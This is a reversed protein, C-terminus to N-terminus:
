RIRESGPNSVDLNRLWPLPRKFEVGIECANQWAIWGSACVHEPIFLLQVEPGTSIPTSFRLRAGKSNIDVILCEIGLGGAGEQLLRARKLSKRRTLRRLEANPM